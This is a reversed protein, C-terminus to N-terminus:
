TGEFFKYNNRGGYKARYLAVDAHRLLADGDTAHEPFTAIGISATVNLDHGSIRYPAKLAHLIKEACAAADQAQVVDVLVIVFEDGGQRSVTDGNRVCGLLRLAVAQLLQDGIAHGLSDNIQKFHDLDIYLLSASSADVRAKDMAQALRDRFYARNPLDTLSDHLALRALKRSLERAVTVDHAVMVAGIVGGNRDHIPSASLEAAIEECDRRILVCVADLAVTKNEIIARATPCSIPQRTAADVLRFVEDIVSGSAEAQMWGTMNEAVRNLYTVLGRFDTSIVADGISNLTVQAREREEFLAEANALLSEESSHLALEAARQRAIDRFVIVAGLFRGQTDHMPTVGYEIAVQDGQRNVLETHVLASSEEIGHKAEAARLAAADHIRQTIAPFVQRLPKGIAESSRWGTISEAALNSFTIRDADDTTIVADAIRALAVEFSRDKEQLTVSDVNASENNTM